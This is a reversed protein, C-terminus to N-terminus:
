IADVFRLILNIPQAVDMYCRHDEDARSIRVLLTTRKRRAAAALGFFDGLCNKDHGRPDSSTTSPPRM